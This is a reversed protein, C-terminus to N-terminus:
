PKHWRAKFGRVDVHVFPTRTSDRNWDYVGIGGILGSSKEVGEFLKALYQADGVGIEGDGNIDDMVGDRNADVYVDAARGYVHMSFRGNGISANYLPTRYGSMISLDEIKSELILLELKRLLNPHVYFLRPYTKPEHCLFEAVKFHPSVSLSEEYVSWVPVLSPRQVYVWHHARTYRSAEIESDSPPTGVPVGLVVSDVEPNMRAFVGIIPSVGATVVLTESPADKGEIVWVQKIDVDVQYIGPRAPATIIAPTLGTAIQRKNQWETVVLTSEVALYLFYRRGNEFWSAHTSDWSYLNQQGGPEFIWDTIKSIVVPKWRLTEGPMSYTLWVLSDVVPNGCQYIVVTGSLRQKETLTALLETPVIRHPICGEVLLIFLLISFYIRHWRCILDGVLRLPKVRFYSEHPCDHHRM